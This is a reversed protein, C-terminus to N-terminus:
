VHIKYYVYVNRVTDKERYHHFLVPFDLSSFLDEVFKYKESNKKKELEKLLLVRILKQPFAKKNKNLGGVQRIYIILFTNTLWKVKKM